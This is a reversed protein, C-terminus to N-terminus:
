KEFRSPDNRKGQNKMQKRIYNIVHHLKDKGLLSTIFSKSSVITPVSMAPKAVPRPATGM